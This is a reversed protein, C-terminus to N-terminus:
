MPPQNEKGKRPGRKVGADSRVKRKKPPVILLDGNNTTSFNLFSAPQPSTPTPSTPSTAPPHVHQDTADDPPAISVMPDSPNADPAPAQTCQRRQHFAVCWAKYDEPSLREFYTVEGEWARLLIDLNSHATIDAPCCFKTLPWNKLVVGHKLTIEEDFGKCSMRSVPGDVADALKENIIHKIKKKMEIINSAYNRSVGEAGSLFWAEFQLTLDPITKSLTVSFFDDFRESTRFFYPVNYQRLDSRVAFLLFEIGTRANANMIEEQMLQITARADNFSAIQVTHRGHKKLNKAKELIAVREETVSHQEECTMARWKEGLQQSVESTKIIPAGPEREENLRQTELSLYTNWRSVNPRRKIHSHTATQTVAKFCHNLSYQPFASQLEVALKMISAKADELARTWKANREANKEKAAAKEFSTLKRRKQQRLAAGRLLNKTAKKRAKLRELGVTSVLPM